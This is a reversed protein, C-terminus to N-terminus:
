SLRRFAQTKVAFWIRRGAALDLEGAAAVTVLSRWTGSRAHVRV